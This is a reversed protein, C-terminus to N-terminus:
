TFSPLHWAKTMETNHKILKHLYIGRPIALAWCLHVYIFHLVFLACFCRLGEKGKGREERRKREEEGEEKRKGKKVEEGRERGRGEGDCQLGVDGFWHMDATTGCACGVIMDRVTGVAHTPYQLFTIINKVGGNSHCVQSGTLLFPKAHPPIHSATTGCATICVKCRNRNIWPHGWSPKRNKIRWVTRKEATPFSFGM